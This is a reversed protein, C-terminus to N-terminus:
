HRRHRGSEPEGLCEQCGATQNQRQHPEQKSHGPLELFALVLDWSPPGLAPCQRERRPVIAIRENRTEKM